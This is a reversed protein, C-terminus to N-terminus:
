SALELVAVSPDASTGILAEDPIPGTVRLAPDTSLDIISAPGAAGCIEVVPRMYDSHNARLVKAFRGDSLEVYSSIPFLSVTRLLARVVDQDFLGQRTGRLIQEMAHYPLMAARHPRPSIMAVFVDAVAAIKALPHIQATCRRRPYGSGNCREHMQYAVMLAAYPVNPVEMLLEFSVIPHRQIVVFDLPGLRGPRSLLKKEIHFMGVDHMLCGMGLEGLQPYPLGMVTGLSLAVMMTQLSHKYPYQDCAPSLGLSVFLDLDETLRVLLENSIDKIDDARQATGSRLRDFTQEIESISNQYTAQCREALRGEYRSAPHQTLQRVFSDRYVKPGDGAAPAAAVVSPERQSLDSGSNRQRGDTTLQPLDDVAVRVRTVGRRKLRTLLTESIQMGSALLLLEHGGVNQYIPSRLTAGVRLQSVDIQTFETM